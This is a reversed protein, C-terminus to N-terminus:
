KLYFLGNAHVVSIIDGGGTSFNILDGLTEDKERTLTVWEMNYFDYVHYKMYCDMSTINFADVYATVLIVAKGPKDDGDPFSANIISAEEAVSYEPIWKLDFDSETLNYCVFQTRGDLGKTATIPLELRIMKIGMAELKDKVPDPVIRYEDPSSLCEELITRKKRNGSFSKPEM